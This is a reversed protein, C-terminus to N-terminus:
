FAYSVKTRKFVVVGAVDVLYPDNDTDIVLTGGPFTSPISSILQVDYDDCPISNFTAATSSNVGSAQALYGGLGEGLTKIGGDTPKFYGTVYGWAEVTFPTDSVQSTAYSVEYDALLTMNVPPQQIFEDPGVNFYARGPMYFGHNKLFTQTAPPKQWIAVNKWFGNDRAHTTRVNYATGSGPYAPVTTGDDDNQAVTYILAGDPQGDVTVSISNGGGFGSKTTWLRYGAEDEVDVAFLVFSTPQTVPNATIAPTSVYRTVCIVEGTAADPDAPDFPINGGQSNTFGQSIQGGTGSGGGGSAQAFQYTYIERGDPHLVGPGVLTYGSPTPPIVGIATITRIALKGGFRLETVDSLTRDGNYTRTIRRLTGDDTAVQERLTATSYPAPANTTGVTQVVPTGTSFQVWNIEVNLNGDQDYTVNPDGVQTETTANIQEYILQLIPRTDAGKDAISDEFKKYTLLLGTWGTPANPWDDATGPADDLGEPILATTSVQFYRTLRKRQDPLVEAFPKKAQAFPYALFSM